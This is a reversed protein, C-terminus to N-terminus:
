CANRIGELSTEPRVRKRRLAMLAANVVIRTLWTSFKSRGQFSDLHIYANLLGDQV